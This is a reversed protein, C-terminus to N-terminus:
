SQPRVSAGTEWSGWHEWGVDERDGGLSPAPAATGEPRAPSAGPPARCLRAEAGPSCHPAPLPCRVARSRVQLPM